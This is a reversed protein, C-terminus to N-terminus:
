GPTVGNPTGLLMAWYIDYGAPGRTAARAVALGFHTYDSRLLTARHSGSDLWGELADELTHQGGALNEGVQGEFGVADIRERLTYGPGFDHSLENRSAMLRAQNSAAQQLLPDPSLPPKGHARRVVNIAQMARATTVADPPTSTGYDLRQEQIFTCSTTLAAAGLIL